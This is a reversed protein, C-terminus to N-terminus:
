GLPNSMLAHVTKQYSYYIHLDPSTNRGKKPMAEAEYSVNKKLIKKM